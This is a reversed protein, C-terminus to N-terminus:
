ILIFFPPILDRKGRRSHWRRNQCPGRGVAAREKEEGLLVRLPILHHEDGAANEESRKWINAKVCSLFGTENRRSVIFGYSPKNDGFCSWFAQAPCPRLPKSPLFAPISAFFGAPM